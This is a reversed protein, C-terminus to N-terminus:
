PHDLKEMEREATSRRGSWLVVVILSGILLMLGRVGWVVLLALTALIGQEGRGPLFWATFAWFAAILLVVVCTGLIRRLLM